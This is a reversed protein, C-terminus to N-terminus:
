KLKRRTNHYPLLHKLKSRHKLFCCYISVIMLTSIFFLLFTLFYLIFITKRIVKKEKLNKAVTKSPTTKTPIIKTVEIIEDCTILSDGIINRLYKGNGSTHTSANRICEKQKYSVKKSKEM